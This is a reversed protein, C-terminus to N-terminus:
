GRGLAAEAAREGSALAAEMNGWFATGTETGAFHVRGISRDFLYRYETLLGPAFFAAAGGRIWPEASWDHEVYGITERAEDGFALALAEELEARREDKSLRGMRRAHANEVLALIVGVSADPPSNDFASGFPTSNGQVVGSLGRERWFPTRYIPFCKIASGMGTRQVSQNRNPPLPPDFLIQQTMTPAMAVIAERAAWRGRPTTLRVRSRGHEIETVPSRLRVIPALPGALGDALRGTGGVVRESLVGSGLTV